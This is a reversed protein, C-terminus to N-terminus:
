LRRRFRKSSLVIATQEVVGVFVAFTDDGVGGVVAGHGTAISLAFGLKTRRFSKGKSLIVVSAEPISELLGRKGAAELFSLSNPPTKGLAGKESVSM